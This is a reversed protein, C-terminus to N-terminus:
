DKYGIVIRRVSSQVYQACPTHIKHSSLSSHRIIRCQCHSLNSFSWVFLYRYDGCTADTHIYCICVQLWWRYCLHSYLLYMGTTMVHLMLTFIVFAYRYDDGTVYTHIYCICVQLWWRYCWHSYLLYMGTIMVQLMLTFIVFVYRYDDGTVYTHIYCICVQLWWRYCLHSYLLYMGTIM